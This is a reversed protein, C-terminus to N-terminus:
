SIDVPSFDGTATQPNEQVISEYHPLHRLAPSGRKKKNPSVNLHLM